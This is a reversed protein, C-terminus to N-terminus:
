LHTPLISQVRSIQMTYTQQAYWQRQMHQAIYEAAHGDGFINNEHAHGNRSFVSNTHNIIAELHTGVLQATGHWVAEMRETEDRTILVQKGMSVAEECIGGSDTIVLSVHMLLYVLEHYPLPNLLHVSSERLGSKEIAEHVQPNPHAPYIVCADPHERTILTIAQLADLLPQGFSERRHMTFLIIKQKNLLATEVIMKLVTGPTLEHSHIRATIHRQADVITNGTLVIRERAIGEKLLNAVAYATPAYHYAASMGITRRYFEEPFPADVTATRLGAEVHSIPIHLYFAALSACFATTTDGQVVVTRPKETQLVIQLTELLQTTLYFLDQGPRMIDLQYDPQIGFLPECIDNVLDTHQGTICLKVPINRKKLATYLPALKICEPRTGLVLMVPQEM